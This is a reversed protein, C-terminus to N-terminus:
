TSARTASIAASRRSTSRRRRCPTCCDWGCRNPLQTRGPGFAARGAPREAPDKGVHHPGTMHVSSQCCASSCGSRSGTLSSTVVPSSLRSGGLVVRHRSLGQHHGCRGPPAPHLLVSVTVSGQSFDSSRRGGDSRNGARLADQPQQLLQIDGIVDLVVPAVRLGPECRGVQLGNVREPLGRDDGIGAPDDDLGPRDDVVDDAMM